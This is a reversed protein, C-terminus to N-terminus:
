HYIEQLVTLGVDSIDFLVHNNTSQEDVQKKVEEFAAVVVALFFNLLLFFALIAFLTTYVAFLMGDTKNLGVMNDWCHGFEGVVMQFQILVAELVTEFGPMVAAFSWYAIFALIFGM